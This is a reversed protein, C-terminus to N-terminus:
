GLVFFPSENAVIFLGKKDRDSFRVEHRRERQGDFFEIALSGYQSGMKVLEKDTASRFSKGCAFYYIGELLNTKGQANNGYLLNVGDAFDIECNEINRFNKLRIKKIRM